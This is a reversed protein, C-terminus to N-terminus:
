CFPASPVAFSPGLTNRAFAPANVKIGSNELWVLGPINELSVSGGSLRESLMPLGIEAEGQFAYDLLELYLMTGEPDGSPHPGGALLVTAPSVQRIIELHHKVPNLDYTFVQFGIVDYNGSQVMVAFDDYDLGEKSCNM